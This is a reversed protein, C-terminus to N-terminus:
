PGTGRADRALGPARTWLRQAWLPSRHVEGGGVQIWDLMCLGLLTFPVGVFDGSLIEGVFDGWSLIGGVYDRGDVGGGPLGGGGLKSNIASIVSRLQYQQM